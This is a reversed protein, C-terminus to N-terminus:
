GKKIEIIRKESIIIDLPIDHGYFPIINNIIQFDYCIGIKIANKDKLFKDYYGKGFGIRNGYIDVGLLPTICIFDDINITKTLPEKINFENIILKLSKNYIAAEMSGNNIKPVYVKKNNKLLYTILDDTKVENKFDLYVFYNDQKYDKLFHILRDNISKSLLIVEDQSLNNRKEKLLKRLENKNM